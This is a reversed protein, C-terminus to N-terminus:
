IIRKGLGSAALETALKATQNQEDLVPNVEVLELSRLVDHNRDYEAVRELAYHAERYTVGGHVPTGVGPAENPDLWDLDLSVHIGDVGATAIELAQDVVEAIGHEDIDSMTFVTGESDRIAEAEDSDIDRLGVWVTNEESLNPSNAWEVGEFDRYGLAAALPMGHINGSPSTEPTNYDGHADFWITGIEADRSAGKLSGIAISHDGGLALPVYGDDISEAVRDALRTCVDEVERVFKADRGEEDPEEAAPDRTEATPVLLDGTDVCEVGAKELQAALGAYRIASPGMDVGRRNAGYDTPAGILRVKRSM